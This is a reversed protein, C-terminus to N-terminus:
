GDVQCRVQGVLHVHLRATPAKVSMNVQRFAEQIKNSPVYMIRWEALGLRVPGSMAKGSMWGM